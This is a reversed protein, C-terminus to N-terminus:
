QRLQQNDNIEGKINKYYLHVNFNVKMVDGKSVYPFVYERLVKIIKEKPLKKLISKNVIVADINEDEKGFGELLVFVDPLILEFSQLIGIRGQPVKKGLVLIDTVPPLKIAEFDMDISFSIESQNTVLSM